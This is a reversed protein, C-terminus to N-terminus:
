ADSLDCTIIAHQRSEELRKVWVKQGQIAYGEDSKFKETSSHDLTFITKLM